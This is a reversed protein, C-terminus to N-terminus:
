PPVRGAPNQRQPAAPTTYAHPYTVTICYYSVNSDFYQCVQVRCSGRLLPSVSLLLIPQGEGDVDSVLIM